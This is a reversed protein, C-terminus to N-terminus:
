CLLCSNEEEERTYVLLRFKAEDRRHRKSYTIGMEEYVKVDGVPVAIVHFSNSCMLLLWRRSNNAKDQIGYYGSAGRSVIEDKSM